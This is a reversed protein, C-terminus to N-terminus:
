LIAAFVEESRLGRFGEIHNQFHVRLSHRIEERTRPSLELNMVDGAEDASQLRCLAQWTSSSIKQSNDLGESCDACLIGSSTTALARTIVGEDVRRACHTCRELEPRFGLLDSLKM